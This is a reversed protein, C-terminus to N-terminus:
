SFGTKYKNNNNQWGPQPTLLFFPPLTSASPAEWRRVKISGSDVSFIMYKGCAHIKGKTKVFVQLLFLIFASTNNCTVRQLPLIYIEFQQLAKSTRILTDAVFSAM